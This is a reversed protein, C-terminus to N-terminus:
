LELTSQTCDYRRESRKEFVVGDKSEITITSSDIAEDSSVSLVAEKGCWIRITAYSNNPDVSYVYSNRLEQTLRSNGSISNTRPTTTPDDKAPVDTTTPTTTPDDKAPVDTTTPTTTPDDKAPVDTTTLTTTPVDRPYLLAVFTQAGNSSQEFITLKKDTNNILKTRLKVM